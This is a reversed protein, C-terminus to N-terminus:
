VGPLGAMFRAEELCTHLAQDAWSIFDLDGPAQAGYRETLYEPLAGYCHAQMGHGGLKELECAIVRAV